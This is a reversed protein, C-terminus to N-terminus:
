NGGQALRVRPDLAIVIDAVLNLLVYAIAAFVTVGIIAPYDLNMVSRAILNGVGPWSFVAEVVFTNVLANGASLALMTVVTGIVNKIAHRWLVVREKLGYARAARIYDENLVELLISRTMRATLALSFSSLTLVPLVMHLALNGAVTWNGTIISDLLPLGTVETLPHTLKLVTDMQGTLPLWHLTSSFIIQLILALWFSPTSIISISFFRSFHDLATNEKYASYVGLFLGALFALAVSWIVLELTNPIAEALEVSVPRHSVISMGMDGKVLNVLYNVYRVVLPKDLGLEIRAAAKQESTAHPGVWKEAPDSPVVAALLFAVTVVVFLVFAGTFLRRALFKGL